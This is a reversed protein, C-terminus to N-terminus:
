GSVSEEVAGDRGISSRGEDVVNSLIEPCPLESEQVSKYYEQSALNCVWDPKEEALAETIAGDWFRYLDKGKPSALKTGMELRYPLMLDYPKLIGYLGSLIRIHNQAKAIQKSTLSGADLGQYVDGTFAWLAQKATQPSAQKAGNTSRATKGAVRDEIQAPDFSQYRGFNLKALGVSLSMLDALDDASKKKMLKALEATQEHLFRPIEAKKTPAPTEFDLSKAPSLLILNKSTTAKRTKSTAM